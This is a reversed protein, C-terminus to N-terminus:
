GPAKLRSEADAARDLFRQTVPNAWLALDRAVALSMLRRARTEFRPEFRLAEVRVCFMADTTVRGAREGDLHRFRQFGVLESAIVEACAEEHVERRLTDEITEAPERRGGPLSWWSFQDDGEAVVVIKGDENFAAAESRQILEDRPGHRPDVWSILARTGSWPPAWFMEITLDTEVDSDVLFRRQARPHPAELLYRRVTELWAQQDPNLTSTRDIPLWHCRWCHGGGDPTTVFWEDPTADEVVFHVLHRVADFSLVDLDVVGTAGDVEISAQRSNHELVRALYGAGVLRDGVRSARNIIATGPQAAPVVDVESRLQLRDLGTEEFAERRAGDYVREDPQLTGAPLQVGARPHDFVCLEPGSAGLRTVFATVKGVASM